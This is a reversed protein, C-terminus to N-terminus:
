IWKNATLVSSHKKKYYKSIFLLKNQVARWRLSPRSTAMLTISLNRNGVLCSAWSLFSTEIKCTCYNKTIIQTHSHLIYQNTRWIPSFKTRIKKCFKCWGPTTLKSFINSVGSRTLLYHIIVAYNYVLALHM